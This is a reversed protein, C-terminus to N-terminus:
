NNNETELLEERKLRCPTCIPEEKATVELSQGCLCLAIFTESDKEYFSPPNIPQDPTYM